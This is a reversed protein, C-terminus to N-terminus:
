QDEGACGIVLASSLPGDDDGLYQAVMPGVRAVADSVAWEVFQRKTLDLVDCAEEVRAYLTRTVKACLQRLEPGDASGILDDVPRPIPHAGTMMAKRKLLQLTVLEDFNM